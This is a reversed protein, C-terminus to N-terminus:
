VCASACIDNTRGTRDMSALAGAGRDPRRASVPHTSPLDARERESMASIAPHAYPDDTWGEAEAPRSGRGALLDGLISSIKMIENGTKKVRHM